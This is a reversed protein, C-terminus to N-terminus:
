NVEESLLYNKVNPLEFILSPLNEIPYRRLSMDSHGSPAINGDYIEYNKLYEVMQESSYNRYVLTDINHNYDCIMQSKHLRESNSGMWSFHWGLDEMIQGDQAAYTVGFPLEFSARMHTASAQEFHKKLCMYTGTWSYPVDTNTYYVRYDARGQLYVLPIKMFQQSNSVIASLFGINSPKIIEDSDSVIFVTDDDFEDLLSNICDRQIRERSGVKLDPDMCLDFYSPGGVVEPSLDMEVVRIKDKPLGLEDIHQNCIFSKPQGSHTHSGEVIVFQDVYDYLLKVRLELIEKANYYTFYDVIKM